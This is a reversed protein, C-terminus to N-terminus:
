SSAPTRRHSARWKSEVSRSISSSTSRTATRPSTSVPACEACWPAARRHLARRRAAIPLRGDGQAQDPRAPERRRDGFLQVLRDPLRRRRRARPRDRRHRRGVGAVRHGDSTSGPGFRRRPSRRREGLRRVRAHLGARRPSGSATAPYRLPRPLPPPPRYRPQQRPQPMPQWLRHRTPQLTARPRHRGRSKPM